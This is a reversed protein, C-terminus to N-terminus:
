RWGEEPDRWTTHNDAFLVNSTNAAPLLDCTLVEPASKTILRYWSHRQGDIIETRNEINFGSRRLELIRAGVQSIRLALIQPLPVWEGHAAVLLELIRSRQTARPTM